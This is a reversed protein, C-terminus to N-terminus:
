AMSLTSNTGGSDNSGGGRTSLATTRMTGSAWGGTTLTRRSLSSTCTAKLWRRLQPHRYVFVDRERLCHRLLFGTV